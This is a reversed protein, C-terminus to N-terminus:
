DKFLVTGVIHQQEVMEIGKIEKTMNWSENRLETLAM